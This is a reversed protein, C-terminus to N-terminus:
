PGQLNEVDALDKARGSARKNALLHPLDIFHLQIGEIVDTVRSTYCEDFSVGSIDNLVELRMPPRGVRVMKGKRLFLSEKLEPVDFGFKKFAGVLAKANAPSIEVFIDLDGTARPYGHYGVAYGGIILYKVRRANLLKLFDKFDKPILIM